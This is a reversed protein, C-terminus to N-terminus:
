RRRTTDKLLSVNVGRFTNTIGLYRLSRGSLVSFNNVTVSLMLVFLCVFVTSFVHLIRISIDVTYSNLWYQLQTLVNISENRDKQININNVHVYMYM